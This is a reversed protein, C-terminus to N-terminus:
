FIPILAKIGFFTLIITGGVALCALILKRYFDKESKSSEMQHKKEMEILKREFEAEKEASKDNMKIFNAIDEQTKELTKGVLALLDTRLEKTDSQVTQLTQLMMDITKEMRADSIARTKLEERIEIIAEEVKRLRLEIDGNNSYNMEASVHLKESGEM